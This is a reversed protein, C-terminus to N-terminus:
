PAPRFPPVGALGKLDDLVVCDYMKDLKESTALRAALKDTVVVDTYPIAAALHAIDLLDNINFSKGAMRDRARTLTFRTHHAPMSRRLREVSSLTLLPKIEHVLIGQKVTWISMLDILDYLDDVIMFREFEAKAIGSNKHRRAEADSVVRDAGGYAERVDRLFDENTLCAKLSGADSRPAELRESIGCDNRNLVYQFAHHLGPPIKKETDFLAYKTMDAPGRGIIESRIDYVPKKGVLGRMANEIEMGLFYSAPKLVYGRSLDVLVDVLELYGGRRRYRSTEIATFLSFPVVIEGSRSLKSIQNYIVLHVPDHDLGKRVKSLTIWHNVDLYVRLTM